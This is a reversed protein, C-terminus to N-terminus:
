EVSKLSEVMKIKKTKMSFIFNVFFATLFSLGFAFVFSVPKIFYLYEVLDVTNTGMVLYLFPYGLLVGIIAGILTLSMTEFLLSLAIEKRKFGLVKLTAIDRSRERFNMLSLNYLVVLALLIAFVKVANTM